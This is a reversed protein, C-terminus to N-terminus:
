SPKLTTPRVELEANRRRLESVERRLAALEGTAPGTHAAERHPPLGTPLEKGRKASADRRAQRSAEVLRDREDAPVETWDLGLAQALEQAARLDRASQSSENSSLSSEM